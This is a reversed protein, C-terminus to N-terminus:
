AWARRRESWLNASTACPMPTASVVQAVVPRAAWARIWSTAADWRCRSWRRGPRCGWVGSAARGATPGAGRFTGAWRRRRSPRLRPRPGWAGTAAAAAAPRSAHFAASRRLCHSRRLDPCSGRTGIAAAAAAPRSDRSAASQHRCRSRRRSMCSGWAGLAAAAAAPRPTRSIAPRRRGSWCRRPSRRSTRGGRRGSPLRRLILAVGRAAPRRPRCHSRSRFPSWWPPPPLAPRADASGPGWLAPTAKWPKCARRRPSPRPVAAGCGRSRWAWSVHATSLATRLAEAGGSSSRSPLCPRSCSSNWACRTACLRM